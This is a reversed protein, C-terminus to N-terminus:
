YHYVFSILILHALTTYFSLSLTRPTQYSREASGGKELYCLDLYKLTM